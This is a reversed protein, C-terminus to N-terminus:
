DKRKEALRYDTIISIMILYVLLFSIFGVIGTLVLCVIAILSLILLKSKNSSDNKVFDSRNLAVYSSLFVFLILCVIVFMLWGDWSFTLNTIFGIFVSYNM